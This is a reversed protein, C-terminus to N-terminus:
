KGNSEKSGQVLNMKSIRRSIKEIYMENKKKKIFLISLIYVFCPSAGFSSLSLFALLLSSAYLFYVFLGFFGFSLPSLVCWDRM